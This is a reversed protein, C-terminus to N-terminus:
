LGPGKFRSIVRSIGRAPTNVLLERTFVNWNMAEPERVDQLMVLGGLMTLALTFYFISFSNWHWWGWAIQWHGLGDIIPGWCLPIIALTLNAAVSYLALFHARGMAPIIGIVARVNALNWLAGALGSIISQFVILTTTCPILGAATLGWISFHCIFVGGSLTLAPRNGTRDIISSALFLALALVCTTLAGVMLVHSDSVHLTDRFFRVWFVGSAGLALNIVVNYRIYKQFPPYFFMAKWPMPNENKVIKEVAVDPVRRLFRVSVFASAASIAYVIGFSYWKVGGHLILAFVSLAVVVALAAAMQDKALFEGRRSEPVIHTFWPMLGCTAVGRMINYGLALLLMTVIRTTANVSDPLFAVVTMGIIFLSRATWGSVVFRRYGVKEVFPAAPVQLLTMVPALGAAIALVTASAHLHQLYLLMPSSLVVVWSTANFVEYIYINHIGKPMPEPPEELPASM